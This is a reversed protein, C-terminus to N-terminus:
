KELWELGFNYFVMSYGLTDGSLPEFNAVFSYNGGNALFARPTFQHEDNWGTFRCGPAATAYLAVTDTNTGTFTGGGTVTGYSTNNSTATVTTTSGFSSNPEIGIVAVNKLNFTSSANGGTGGSSPNLSGIAYYGDCWGGWGWNIHFQGGNDYGDCVFCHGGTSDRGSYLIPRSANLESMLLASWDANSYDDISVQRLSSKYKFYTRLANEASPEFPDGNSYALAGSGGNAAVDYNMEMAVGVHYMLTAVATRQATTSSSTLQAPMSTWAYTTTGFNASLTGYYSHAYSHSGHGTAPHNWYKMVQAMATAVCGTVTREGLYSNYPCLNNYYQTQNWTTSLLPSVATNQPPDDYSGELLDVWARSGEDRVSQLRGQGLSRYHLIQREYDDLWGKVNSPMGETVFTGSTSYGLIPLVCDDASVIVFGKGDSGAFIYFATYPTTGTIDVLQLDEAGKSKLFSIAAAHAKTKDVPAASVFTGVTLVAAVLLLSLAKKM